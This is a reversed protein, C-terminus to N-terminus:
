PSMSSSVARAFEQDSLGEPSGYVPTPGPMFDAKGTPRGMLDLIRVRDDAIRVPTARVGEPAWIALVTRERRPVSLCARRRGTRASGRFRCTV